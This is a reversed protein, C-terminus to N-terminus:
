QVNVYWAIVGIAITPLVFVLGVLQAKLTKEFGMMSRRVFISREPSEGAREPHRQDWENELAEAKTSRLYISLLLYFITEIIFLFIILRLFVM